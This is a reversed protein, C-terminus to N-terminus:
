PSRAYARNSRKALTAPIVGARSCTGVRESVCRITNIGKASARAVTNRDSTHEDTQREHRDECAMDVYICISCKYWTPQPEGTLCTWLCVRGCVSVCLRMPPLYGPLTQRNQRHTQRYVRLCTSVYAPPYEPRRPPTCPYPPSIGPPPYPRRRDRRRDTTDDTQLRRRRDARVDARLRRHAVM